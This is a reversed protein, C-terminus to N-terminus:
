KKRRSDPLLTQTGDMPKRLKCAGSVLQELAHLADVEEWASNPYKCSGLALSQSHIISTRPANALARALARALTSGALLFLMALVSFSMIFTAM